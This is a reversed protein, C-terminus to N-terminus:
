CGFKKMLETCLQTDDMQSSATVEPQARPKIPSDVLLDACQRHFLMVPTEVTKRKESIGMGAAVRALKGVQSNPELCLLPFKAFLYEQEVDCGVMDEPHIQLYVRRSHPSALRRDSIECVLGGDYWVLNLTKLQKFMNPPLFCRDICYMLNMLDNELDGTIDLGPSRATLTYSDDFITLYLSVTLEAFANAPLVNFQRNSKGFVREQFAMQERIRNFVERKYESLCADDVSSFYGLLVDKYQEVLATGKLNLENPEVSDRFDSSIDFGSITETNTQTQQDYNRASAFFFNEEEDM